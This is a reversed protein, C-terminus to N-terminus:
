EIVEDARALLTPPVTLGLAKATTLNIVLEFTTPQMVPLDAPKAGKLIRGAYVGAQLYMGAISPGYSILGGAMAIERFEYIAPIAHRAALAVIQARQLFFFPDATVVLAGAQQQTMIGFAADFDPESSANLILVRKRLVSAAAQLAKTQARALPSNQNVLAAIVTTQPMLEQLLGFRKEDLSGTLLTMGTVNGGPRNFSLVLGLGVPDGGIIFVVPITSTAAKAALASADGGTAAIVTVGRGALDAALESLQNYKGQAWRFEIAVNQGEIFGVESLGKRFNTVLHAFPAPSASSLFGIVPMTPQQARAALPWSVAAGGVVTVFERRRM